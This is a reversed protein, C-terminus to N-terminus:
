SSLIVGSAGTAFECRTWREVHFACRCPCGGRLAASLLAGWAMCPIQTYTTHVHTGLSPDRGVSSMFCVAVRVGASFRAALYAASMAWLVAHLDM